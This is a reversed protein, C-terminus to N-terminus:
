SPEYTGENYWWSKGAPTTEHLDTDDAIRVTFDFKRLPRDADKMTLMDIHGNMAAVDARRDNRQQLTEFRMEDEAIDVIGVTDALGDGIWLVLQM